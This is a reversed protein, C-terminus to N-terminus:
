VDFPFAARPIIRIDDKTKATNTTITPMADGIADVQEAWAIESSM